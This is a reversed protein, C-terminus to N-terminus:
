KSLHNVILSYLNNICKENKDKDIAFESNFKGHLYEDILNFFVDLKDTTILGPTLPPKSDKQTRFWIVPLGLSIAESICRPMGEFRSCHVMIKSKSLYDLVIESPIYDTFTIDKYSSSLERMASLRSGGGVFAIKYKDFLPFLLEQNKRPENFNGINIIDYIPESKGKFSLTDLGSIYKSILNIYNSPHVFERVVQDHYEELILSNRKLSLLEYDIEGGIIFVFKSDILKKCNVIEYSIKYSLGKIIVLDPNINQIKELLLDSTKEKDDVSYSDPEFLKLNKEGQVIGSINEQGIRFFFVEFNELLKEVLKAERVEGGVHNLPHSLIVVIKLKNM